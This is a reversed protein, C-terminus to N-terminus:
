HHKYFGVGVIDNWSTTNHCEFCQDVRAREKGAFKKSVMEFHGMLHSPPPQHCQVCDTSSPAPHQYGPVQWSVFAHCQGCDSGMRKFHPDKSDHCGACNLAERASSADLQKPTKVRLWTELSQLTAASEADPGIDPSFHGHAARAMTRMGVQALALHDMTVPRVGTGQHEIHCSSCEQVSAHFATPQRGLLREANAHCATCNAVTVGVNPTHCAGCQDGLHAHRPSLVGPSVLQQALVKAPAFHRVAFVAIGIVAVSLLAWLLARKM